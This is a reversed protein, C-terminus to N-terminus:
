MQRPVPAVAVQTAPLQSCFLSHLMFIQLWVVCKQASQALSMLQVLAYPALLMHTFPVHTAPLQRLLASQPVPM